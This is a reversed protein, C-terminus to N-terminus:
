GAGKDPGKDAGPPAVAVHQDEQRPPDRRLLEPVTVLGYGRARLRQIIKPLAKVTQSRDGGGDHMLVIAGPTAASVVNRVIREVGPRAYDESDVSWLILAMGRQTMLALTDQNFAGYPPRFLRPPKEGQAEMTAATSIIEDRQQDLTMAALSHHTYTHDGIAVHDLLATAQGPNPNEELNKGVQFFTAPTKSRRLIALIQGTYAGPGDDFTLAVMHRDGGGHRIAGVRENAALVAQTQEDAPPPAPLTAPGVLRKVPIAKKTAAAVPDEHNSAGPFPPLSSFAVGLLLGVFAAIQVHRRDWTRPLSRLARRVASVFM